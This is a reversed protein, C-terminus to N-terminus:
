PKPEVPAPTNVRIPPNKEVPKEDPAPTNVNIDPAKLSAADPGMDAAALGADADKPPSEVTNVYVPPAPPPVNEPEANNTGPESPITNVNPPKPNDKACGAGISLALGTVALGQSVRFVLKKKSM